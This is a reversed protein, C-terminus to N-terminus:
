KCFTEVQGDYQRATMIQLTGNECKSLDDAEYNKNDLALLIITVIMIISTIILTIKNLRKDKEQQIMKLRNAKLQEDTLILDFNYKKM